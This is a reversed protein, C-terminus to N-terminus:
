IHQKSEIVKKKFCMGYQSYLRNYIESDTKIKDRLEIYRKINGDILATDMKKHLKFYNDSLKDRQSLVKKCIADM